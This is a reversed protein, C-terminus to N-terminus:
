SKYKCAMKFTIMYFHMIDAILTDYTNVVGYYNSPYKKRNRDLISVLSWPDLHFYYFM